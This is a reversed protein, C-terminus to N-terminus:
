PHQYPQWRSLHGWKSGKRRRYLQSLTCPPHLTLTVSQFHIPHKELSETARSLWIWGASTASDSSLWMLASLSFLVKCSTNSRPWSFCLYLPLLIFPSAFSLCKQVHSVNWDVPKCEVIEWWPDIFYKQNCASWLDNQGEDYFVNKETGHPNNGNQCLHQLCLQSRDQSPAWSYLKSEGEWTLEGRIGKYSKQRKVREKPSMVVQYHSQHNGSKERKVTM